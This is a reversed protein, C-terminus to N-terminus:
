ASGPALRAQENVFYARHCRSSLNEAALDARESVHAVECQSGGGGAMDEDEEPTFGLGRFFSDFFSSSCQFLLHAGQRMTKM